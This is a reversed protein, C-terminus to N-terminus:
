LKSEHVSNRIEGRCLSTTITRQNVRQLLQVLITCLHVHLTRPLPPLSLSVPFSANSPHLRLEPSDISISGKPTSSIQDIYVLFSRSALRFQRSGLRCWRSGLLCWRSGLLCWRSGLQCRCSCFRCRRPGPLCRRPGLRCRAPVPPFRALLYQSSGLLCRATVPPFWTQVLGASAPVSGAGAIVFESGACCGTGLTQRSHHTCHM